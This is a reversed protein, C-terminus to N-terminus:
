ITRAWIGVEGDGFPYRCSHTGILRFGLKQHFRESSPNPPTRWIFGIALRPNAPDKEVAKFLHDYLKKAYGQGRYQFRTCVQRVAIFKEKETRKIHLYIDGGFQEIQDSSHALLFGRIEDEEESVYFHVASRVFVSYEDASYPFLFGREQREKQSLKEFSCENALDSVRPILQETATVIKM